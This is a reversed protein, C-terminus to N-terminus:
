NARISAPATAPIIPIFLPVLQFLIISPILLEILDTVGEIIIKNNIPENAPM